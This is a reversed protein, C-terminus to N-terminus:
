VHAGVCVCVHVRVYLCDYVCVMCARVGQAGFTWPSKPKGSTGRRGGRKAKSM